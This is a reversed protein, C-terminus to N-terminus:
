SVVEWGFLHWRDKSPRRGPEDIRLRVEATGGETYLMQIIATSDTENLPYCGDFRLMDVPFPYGGKITFEM